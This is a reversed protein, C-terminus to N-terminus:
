EEDYEFPLFGDAVAMDAVEDESMYELAAEALSQWSIVGDYAMELLRNTQRRVDVNAKISKKYKKM